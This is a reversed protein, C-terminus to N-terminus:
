KLQGSNLNKLVQAHNPLVISVYGVPSKYTKYHCVIFQVFFLQTCGNRPLSAGDEQSAFELEQV